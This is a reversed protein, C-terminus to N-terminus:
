PCSADAPLSEIWARVLEVGEAHVLRIGLPPMRVELDTSEMRCILISRDPDGPVVDYTHGCTAGGASTPIKCVGWNSSPQTSPDTAEFDLLLSSQSANGGTTHCASCNADFYSRVRLSLDADGFPDVLRTRDEAAPLGELWGLAALHELQNVPGEGYDHDRDLQRSRGGLSVFTDANQHCDKCENTNPVRYLNDVTAGSADVFRAEVFKGAVLRTAETQEDNWVYTHAAWGAPEKHLIRTELIREESTPDRLDALYSFTKVLVTGVPFDLPGTAAYAITAGEPVHVFRRKSTYDSFLPAIVEFPLVREAPTQARLDAFLNWESLSEWPAGPEPPTVLVPEPEPTPTTDEGGCGSALAATGALAVIAALALHIGFRRPHLPRPRSPM